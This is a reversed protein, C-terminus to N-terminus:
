SEIGLMYMVEEELRGIGHLFVYDTGTTETLLGFAKAILENRLKEDACAYLLTLREMRVANLTHMREMVTSVSPPLSSQSSLRSFLNAINLREKIWAEFVRHMAGYQAGLERRLVVDKRHWLQLVDHLFDVRVPPLSPVPVLWQFIKSTVEYQFKAVALDENPPFSFKLTLLPSRFFSSACDTQLPRSGPHSPSLIKTSQNTPNPAGLSGSSAAPHPVLTSQQEQVCDGDSWATSNSSASGEPCVRLTREAFGRGSTTLAQLWTQTGTQECVRAREFGKAQKTILITVSTTKKTSYTASRERRRRQAYKNQIKRQETTGMTDCKPVKPNLGLPNKTDVSCQTIISKKCKYSNGRWRSLPSSAHFPFSANL